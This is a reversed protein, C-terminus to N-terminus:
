PSNVVVCVWRSLLAVLCTIMSYLVAHSPYSWGLPVPGANRIKQHTDLLDHGNLKQTHEMM